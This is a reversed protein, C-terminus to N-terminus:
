DFRGAHQARMGVGDGYLSAWPRLMVERMTQELTQLTVPKLLHAAFGARSTREQDAPMGAATLAIARVGMSRAVEALACGDGDPLLLDIIVLDFERMPLLAQACALSRAQTLQHGHQSLLRALVSLTDVHDEVLLIRM